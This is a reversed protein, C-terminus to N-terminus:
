LLHQLFLMSAYSLLCPGSLEFTTKALVSGWGLATITLDVFAFVVGQATCLGKQDPFTVYAM